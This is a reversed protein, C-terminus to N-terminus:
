SGSTEVTQTPLWIASSDPTISLGYLTSGNGGLSAESYTRDVSGDANLLVVETSCAVAVQGDDLIRLAYCTASPMSSNFDALQSGTCVNLARVVADESDYLLTCQDASLDIWDIGRRGTRRPTTPPTPNVHFPPAGHM